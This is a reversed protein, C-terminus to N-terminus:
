RSIGDTPEVLDSDMVFIDFFAAKLVCNPAKSHTVIGKPRQLAGIVNCRTTLSKPLELQMTLIGCICGIQVMCFFYNKQLETKQFCFM